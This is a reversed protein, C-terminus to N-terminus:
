RVSNKKSHSIYRSFTVSFSLVCLKYDICKELITSNELYLSFFFIASGSLGGIIINIYHLLYFIQNAYRNVLALICVCVCVCVNM